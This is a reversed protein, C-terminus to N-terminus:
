NKAIAESATASAGNYTMGATYLADIQESSLKRTLIDIEEETPEHDEGQLFRVVMGTYARNLTVTDNMSREASSDGAVARDPDSHSSVNIEVIELDSRLKAMEVSHSWIAGASLEHLKFKKGSIVHTHLRTLPQGDMSFLDDLDVDVADMNLDSGM